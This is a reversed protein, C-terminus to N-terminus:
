ERPIVTNKVCIAASSRQLYVHTEAGEKHHEAPLEEELIKM